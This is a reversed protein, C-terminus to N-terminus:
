SQQGLRSAHELREDLTVLEVALERSLWLYAADYVTLGTDLALQLVKPLDVRAEEIAFRARLRYARLHAARQDPNRRCKKWCVNALEFELLPPAVLRADALQAALQPAEPEDFLLASVASADVVKVATM